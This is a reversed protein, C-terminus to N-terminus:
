ATSGLQLLQVYTLIRRQLFQITREGPQGPQIDAMTRRQFRKEAVMTLQGLQIDALVGVQFLQATIGIGHRRQIQLAM